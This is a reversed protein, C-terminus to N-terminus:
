SRRSVVGEVLRVGIGGNSTHWVPTLPLRLQQDLAPHVSLLGLRWGRARARLVNGTQAYLNRLRLREGVRVGYPPNTVIWGATQPLELESIVAQRISIDAAVGAREANHRMAAVAGADRDSAVIAVDLTSRRADLALARAEEFTGAPMGPWQEAAFSRHLGPAIRRAIMAAEIPITGSGAFPDVLPVSGDWGVGLLMAAALTERLPAKATEKRYGRRHLLAGSSDASVTVQDRFVRIIFRQPQPAGTPDEHDDGPWSVPVVGQVAGAATRALREAIADQHYLRSKKSTVRFAIGQGPVLYEAWPLKAARRELEAFSAAHFGGLRILIRSATRLHINLRAITAHDAELALGGPEVSDPELGLTRLESATVQELGPATIVFAAFTSGMAWLYSRHTSM